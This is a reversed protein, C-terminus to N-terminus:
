QGKEDKGGAELGTHTGRQLKFLLTLKLFREEVIELQQQEQLPEPYSFGQLIDTTAPLLRM